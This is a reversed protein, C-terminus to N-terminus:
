LNDQIDHYVGISDCSPVNRSRSKRKTTATERNCTGRKSRELARHHMKKTTRASMSQTMDPPQLSSRAVRPLAGNIPQIASTKKYGKVPVGLLMYVLM